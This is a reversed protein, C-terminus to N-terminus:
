VDSSHSAGQIKSVAIFSKTLGFFREKRIEAQPFLTSMESQSILRIRRLEDLIAEDSQNWRKLHSYPWNLAIKKQAGKPLHQFLPFLFHPEVPFARNPTQIWFSKSVRDAESAFQEQRSFDGVHEIVSNSYVVDFQHNDFMSLDCADGKLCTFGADIDRQKPKGVNLLTVNEELGSGLWTASEGGLDLITHGPKVGLTEVFQRFRQKRLSASVSDGDRNNSIKDILESLM